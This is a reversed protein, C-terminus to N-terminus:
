NRKMTMIQLLLFLKIRPYQESLYKVAKVMQNQVTHVSISLIDAIEQYSLGDIRSMRFIQQRKGPLEQIIKEIEETLEKYLLFDDASLNSINGEKDIVEIEELDQKDKKLYNLSQNKVAMFLYAKLSSKIEISGRKLWINLFVDAVAEEALDINKLIQYSFKCLGFYYRNFLAELSISNNEKIGVLLDIDSRNAINKM